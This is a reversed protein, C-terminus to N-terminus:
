QQLAVRLCMALFMPLKRAKTGSAQRAIAFPANGARPLVMTGGKAGHFLNGNASGQASKGGFHTLKTRSGRAHKALAFQDMTRQMKVKLFVFDNSMLSMGSDSGTLSMVESEDTAAQNEGAQSQFDMAM